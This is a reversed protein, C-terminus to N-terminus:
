RTKKMKKEMKWKQLLVIEEKAKNENKSRTKKYRRKTQIIFGLMKRQTSQIMREHEKSLTWTRSAYNMTPNVEMAFLRLRHRLFYSESTLEQKNRLVTARNREKDRDDGVTRLTVVQGLYTTSEEKTLIEGKINDIKIEKRSNSSQSSLIKTKGSHIKLGVKETSQKFVRLMKQFQEKTSDFLLMDEAFHLNTLCDHDTSGLCIGLGKKKQWRPFDEKM